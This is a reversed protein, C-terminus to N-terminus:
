MYRNYLLIQLFEFRFYYSLAQLICSGDEDAEHIVTVEHEDSTLTFEATLLARIDCYIYILELRKDRQFLVNM